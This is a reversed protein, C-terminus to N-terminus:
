LLGKSEAESAKMAISREVEARNRGCWPCFLFPKGGRRRFTDVGERASQFVIYGNVIQIQLEWDTCCSFSIEKM